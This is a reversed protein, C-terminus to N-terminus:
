ENVARVRAQTRKRVTCVCACLLMLFFKPFFLGRTYVRVSRSHYFIRAANVGAYSVQGRPYLKTTTTTTAPTHIHALTSAARPSTLRGGRKRKKGM